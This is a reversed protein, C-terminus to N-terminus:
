PEDATLALLEDGTAVAYLCICVNSCMLKCILPTEFGVYYTETCVRIFGLADAKKKFSNKASIVCSTEPKM